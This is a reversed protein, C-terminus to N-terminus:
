ARTGRIREGRSPGSTSAQPLLACVCVLSLPPPPMCRIIERDTKDMFAFAEAIHDSDPLIWRGQADNLNFMLDFVLDLRAQLRDWLFVSLNRRSEAEELALQYFRSAISENAELPM